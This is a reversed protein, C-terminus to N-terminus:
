EKKGAEAVARGVAIYDLVLNRKERTFDGCTKGAALRAESAFSCTHIIRKIATIACIGFTTACISSFYYTGMYALAIYFAGYGAKEMTEILLKLTELDM